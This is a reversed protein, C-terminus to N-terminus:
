KYKELMGRRDLILIKKGDRAIFGEECLKDAARYLSARGLNLMECLSNMQVTLEAPTGDDADSAASDLYYALRREASGATLCVIKRNLYCIRRTLFNIYNYLAAKDKELIIGFKEASIELVACKKAAIVRSVFCEDSFLNAVGVIGGRSATRLLVTRNEDASYIEATGSLFVTMKRKTSEPSYILEGAAYEVATFDGDTLAARLLDQDVGVFLDIGLLASLTKEIDLNQLRNM